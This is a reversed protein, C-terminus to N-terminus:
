NVDLSNVSKALVHPIESVVDLGPYGFDLLSISFTTCIEFFMMVSTVSFPSSGKRPISSYLFVGTSLNM